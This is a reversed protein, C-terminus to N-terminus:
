APVVSQVREHSRYSDRKLFVYGIISLLAAIVIYLAGLSAIISGLGFRHMTMAAIATALGGILTGSFNFLGYGTARQRSVTVDCLMALWSSDSSLMALAFCILGVILIPLHKTTGIAILAPLGLASCLAAALYRHRLDRSAWRDSMTTYIPTLIVAAAQLYFTGDFAAAELSRQYREFIFLPLYTFIILNAVSTLSFAAILIAFSPVRLLESLNRVSAKPENHRERSARKNPPHPLFKLLVVAYALGALGTITMMTRWHWHTAIWAAPLGSLFVGLYSGLQYYGSARAQSKSDHFDAILAQAVPMYSVQAAALLVRLIILQTSNTVLGSLAALLSWAAVSGILVQRRSFRDGLYGAIPSLLGYTWWFVSAVLGITTDSAHLDARWLPIVSFLTLRNLYDFALGFSLLAVLLWKPSLRFARMNKAQNGLM